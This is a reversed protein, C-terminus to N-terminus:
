ERKRHKVRWWDLTQLLGEHFPISPTWDTAAHIKDACGVFIPVNSTRLKNADRKVEFTVKSQLILYSLIDEIKRSVGSCVNYIGNPVEHELLQIYAHIVDDIFLFDRQVTIDGVKVFPACRNQEIAVIQSIFDSIVFGPRQEPGFHNFPRVHVLELQNKQAMQLALQGATFKSVAYPNQPLCPSDETLPVGMLASIGYEESSGISMIKAQQAAHCVSDIVNMTGIVNTQVTHVPNSWSPEVLTQGALHVICAPKFQRLVEVLTDPELVNMYHCIVPADFTVETRHVGALVEHDREVLARILRRGVFGSAGTVLIRM